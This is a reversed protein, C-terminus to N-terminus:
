ALAACALAVPADSGPLASPPPPPPFSPPSLLSLLPGLVEDLADLAEESAVLRRQVCEEVAARRLAQSDGEEEAARLEQRRRATARGRAKQFDIFWSEGEEGVDRLDVSADQLWLQLKGSRRCRGRAVWVCPPVTM